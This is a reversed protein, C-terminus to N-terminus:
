TSLLHFHAISTVTDAIGGFSGSSGIWLAVKGENVSTILIAGSGIRQRGPSLQLQALLSADAAQERTNVGSGFLM